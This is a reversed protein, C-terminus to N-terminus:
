LRIMSVTSSQDRTVSVLELGRVQKGDRAMFTVKDLFGSEDAWHMDACALLQKILRHMSSRFTTFLHSHMSHAM